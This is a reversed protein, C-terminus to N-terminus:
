RVGGRAVGQSSYYKASMPEFEQQYTGIDPKANLNYIGQILDYGGYTLQNGTNMAYNPVQYGFQVRWLNGRGDYTEGTVASWTDEDIYYRRKAYIHRKGEKLDGEVVWVRHKEWRNYEPKIFKPGLLDKIETNHVLEYSNYPVIKEQRGILTWTYREPSGNYVFADDYTSTGAVGPNPTDFAVAPARRVRRQGVLYQWASRGRGETYDAGPEHVLIIEGARRSPADYKIRLLMWKKANAGYEDAREPNYMPYELNYSGHTSLVPKGSSSVYYASYAMRARLGEWRIMHNWLTELGTQPVPFPVGAKQNIIKQGDEVLTANAANHKANEQLWEPVIFNRHSPYVDVSFGELQEFMGLTGETLFEKHDALNAATITYLPKEDAFPDPLFGSRPVYSAPIPYGKPNWAPISGDANGAAIAGTPTLENGLKAIEEASVAAYASSFGLAGLCAAILTHKFKM